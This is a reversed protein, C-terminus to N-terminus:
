DVEEAQRMWSVMDLELITDRLDDRSVARGEPVRTDEKLPQNNNAANPKVHTARLVHLRTDQSYGVTKPQDKDAPESAFERQVAVNFM